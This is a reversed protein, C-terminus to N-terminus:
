RRFYQQLSGGYKETLTQRSTFVFIIENEWFGYEDFHKVAEICKERILENKGDVEHEETQLDTKYFVDIGKFDVLIKWVDENELRLIEEKVQSLVYYSLEDKLTEFAVFIEDPTYEAEYLQYKRYLEAFRHSFARQIASDFNHGKKMRDYESRDWLVATMQLKGGELCDCIYDIVTVKYEEKAWAALEALLQSPEKKGDYLDKASIFQEDSLFM